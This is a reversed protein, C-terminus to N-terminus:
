VTQDSGRDRNRFRPRPEWPGRPRLSIGATATVVFFYLFINPVWQCPLLNTQSFIFGPKTWWCEHNITTYYNPVLMCLMMSFFILKWFNLSVTEAAASIASRGRPRCYKNINPQVRSRPVWRRDLNRKWWIGCGLYKAGWDLIKGGFWFKIGLGFNRGSGFTKGLGFNQRSGFKEGQDLINGNGFIEGWEWYWAQLCDLWTLLLINKQCFMLTANPTSLIQCIELKVPRMLRIDTEM